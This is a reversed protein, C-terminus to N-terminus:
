TKVWEFSVTTESLVEDVITSFGSLALCNIVKTMSCLIWDGDQIAYIIIYYLM